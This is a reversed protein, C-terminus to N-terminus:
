LLLLHGKIVVRNLFMKIFLIGNNIRRPKVGEFTIKVPFIYGNEDFYM